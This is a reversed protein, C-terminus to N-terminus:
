STAPMTYRRHLGIPRFGVSRYLAESGDNSVLSYVMAERAGADRLRHLGFLNVARGLGMRQHGPHTGVPEFYGLEAPQDLWGMAFAALLGDPAEAVVDLDYRYPELGVLIAYKEVTMKSPAFAARHVEVRAPIENPGALGRLTYGDPASPGPLTRDLSQFYQTLATGTPAFGLGAVVDAELWDDAAWVKLPPMSGGDSPSAGAAVRGSAWALIETRIRREDADAVGAAVFWELGSPPTLWGWGVTSGGDTWIRIRGPWDADPGGSAFWWALDGITCSVLPRRPSLWAATVAAQMARLDDISAFARSRLAMAPPYASGRM